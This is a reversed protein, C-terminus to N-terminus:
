RANAYKFPFEAFAMFVFTGGNANQSADANRIKFGNSLLDIAASSEVASQEAVLLLSAPNYAGRIGDQMYWNGTTDVRKTLVFAPRFGCNIFPGNNSGNGTYSGFKSLGPIGAFLYAIHNSSNENTYQGSGLTIVSAGPATNNWYGPGTDPMASTNLILATTAAIDRHKVAWNVASTLNKILVLDPTVGLGHALTRGATANGVYAVTDLGYLASKKWCWATYTVGTVNPENTGGVAVDFTFGDATFALGAASTGGEAATLNSSLEKNGATATRVADFIRHNATTNRAKIWILDPQHGVGAIAQNSDDGSYNVANFASKSKKSAPTAIKDHRLANFGTPAATNFPRQGFNCSASVSASGWQDGIAPVFVDGAATIGTFAAGTGAVPDGSNQWTGNKSFFIKGNDLDLAVGIVDNTTFTAGWVSGLDGNNRLHGNDGGYAYGRATGGAFAALDAAIPNKVVGFCGANSNTQTVEWYWKGAMMPFTGFVTQDGSATTVVDLNGNSYVVSSPLEQIPNLTCFNHSTTDTLSDNGAGATVSINTPTWDNNNGSRDKGITSSTAASNDSFDPYTGNTGYTGNYGKPRWQGTSPCFFGFYSADLAANGDVFRVDAMLLDAYTPTFAAIAGLTHATATNIFPLDTNLSPFTTSAFSTVRVGNVYLRLRDTLTANPTDVVFVLHMWSAPDRYEANTRLAAVFSNSVAFHFSIQDTAYLNASGFGLYAYDTSATGASLIEGHAGTTSKKVWLSLAWQKQNGAAAPTRTLKASDASNFRLSRVQQYAECADGSGGFIPFM